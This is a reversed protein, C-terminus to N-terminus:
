APINGKDSRSSASKFFAAMQSVRLCRFTRTTVPISIFPHNFEWSVNELRVQPIECSLSFLSTPHM